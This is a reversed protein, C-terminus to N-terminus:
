FQHSFWIFEFINVSFCVMFARVRVSMCLQFIKNYEPKQHGSFVAHDPSHRSGPAMRQCFTRWACVAAFIFWSNVVFVATRTGRQPCTDSLPKGTKRRALRIIYDFQIFAMHAFLVSINLHSMSKQNSRLQVRIFIALVFHALFLFFLTVHVIYVNGNRIFQCPWMHRYSSKGHDYAAATTAFNATHRQSFELSNWISQQTMATQRRHTIGLVYCLAWIWYFKQDFQVNRIEHALRMCNMMTMPMSELM